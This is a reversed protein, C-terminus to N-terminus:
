NLCGVLFFQLKLVHVSTISLYNTQDHHTTGTVNWRLIGECCVGEFNYLSKYPLWVQPCFLM